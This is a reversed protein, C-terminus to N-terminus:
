RKLRAIANTAARVIHADRDQLMPELVTVDGPTGLYGVLQALNARYRWDKAVKLASLVGPLADHGLELLYDRALGDLDNDAVMSAIIHSETEGMLQLAFAAALRVSRDSDATFIQEIAVKSEADRLRGLGEIAARRIDVNRDSINSRFLARDDASGIRALAQLAAFSLDTRRVVLSRLASIAREERVLGLAETAFLRVDHNTDDMSALLKPGAERAHLRGLVRATAVRMIPDYHDLGDALAAVQEAPLPAEAIFGVAHVANFRVLATDDRMAAILKDIVVPPTPAATRILPGDDFAAQARSKSSGVGLVRVVTVKETLFFTLEADIAALQVRDDPDLILPAVAEAAPTYNAAELRNVAGLRTDASPHRLYRIVDQWQAATQQASMRAPTVVLAFAVGFAAALLTRRTM